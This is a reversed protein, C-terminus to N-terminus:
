HFALLFHHRVQYGPPSSFHPFVVILWQFPQYRISPPALQM